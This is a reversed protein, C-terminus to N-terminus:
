EDANDYNNNKIKIKINPSGQRQDQVKNKIQKENALKAIKREYSDINNGKKLGSLGIQSM